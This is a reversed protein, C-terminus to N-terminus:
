VNRRFEEVIEFDIEELICDLSLPSNQHELGIDLNQAFMNKFNMRTRRRTVNLTLENCPTSRSDLIPSIQIKTVSLRIYGLRNLLYVDHNTVYFVCEIIDSPRRRFLAESLFFRFLGDLFIHV